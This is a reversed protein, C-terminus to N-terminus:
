WSREWRLGIWDPGIVPALHTANEPTVFLKGIGYALAAAAIVDRAHHDNNDVRVWAVYGTLLWAPVGYQWGYREELFSAGAGAFAVHGSPFGYGNGNPRRGLGTYNFALRLTSNLLQNALLNRVFQKEGEKDNKLYATAFAGVPIAAMVIHGSIADAAQAKPPAQALSFVIALSAVYRYLRTMPVETHPIASLLYCYVADEERVLSATKM